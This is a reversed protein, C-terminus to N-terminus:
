PRHTPHNEVFHKLVLKLHLVRQRNGQRQAQDLDDLIIRKLHPLGTDPENVLYCAYEAAVITPLGEHRAVAEIEDETLDSMDLCDHYSLM